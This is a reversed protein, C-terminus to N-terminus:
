VRCAIWGKSLEWEYKRCTDADSELRSWLWGSGFRKIYREGINRTIETNRKEKVCYDLLDDGSEESCNEMLLDYMRERQHKQLNM